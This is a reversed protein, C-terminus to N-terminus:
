GVKLVHESVSSNICIALIAVCEGGQSKREGKVGSHM